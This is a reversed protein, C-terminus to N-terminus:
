KAAKEKLADLAAASLVLRRAKMVDLANLDRIERVVTRQLNRVSLVLNPQNSEVAIVANEPTNSGKMFKVVRGTKPGDNFSLGEVVCVEGDKFKSLLASNLATRRLQKPIERHWDRSRPGHSVGGGARNPPRRDGVRARGTGKQKWLKRNSGAVEGRTKAHANGQRLNRQYGLVVTQLTKTLVKEGFISEDFDVKRVQKGDANYVPIQTM